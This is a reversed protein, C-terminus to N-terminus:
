GLTTLTVGGKKIVHINRQKTLRQQEQLTEDSLGDILELRSFFDGVVVNCTILLIILRRGPTRQSLGRKENESHM